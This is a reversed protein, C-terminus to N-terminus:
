GAMEQLLQSDRCTLWGYTLKKESCAKGNTLKEGEIVKKGM